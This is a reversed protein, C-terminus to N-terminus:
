PNKKRYGRGRWLMYQVWTLHKEKLVLKKWSYSYGFSIKCCLYKSAVSYKWKLQLFCRRIYYSIVKRQPSLLISSASSSFCSGLEEEPLFNRLSLNPLEKGAGSWSYSLNRKGKTRALIVKVKYDNQVRSLFSPQSFYYVVKEVRKDLLFLTMTLNWRWHSSLPKCFYLPRHCKQNMVGQHCLRTNGHFDLKQWYTYLSWGDACGCSDGPSIISPKQNPLIQLTQLLQSWMGRAKKGVYM